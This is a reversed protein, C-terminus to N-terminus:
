ICNCPFELAERAAWVWTFLSSARRSILTGDRPQSSGRSSSIATWGLVRAQLIGHISSGPPSYDMPSCLTLSSQAVEDEKWKRWLSVWYASYLLGGERHPCAWRILQLGFYFFSPHVDKWTSSFRGESQTQICVASKLSAVSGIMCSLKKFYCLRASQRGGRCRVRDTERQRERQRQRDWVCGTPQRQLARVLADHSCCATLCPPLLVPLSPHSRYM